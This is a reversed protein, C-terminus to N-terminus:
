SVDILTNVISISNLINLSLCPKVAGFALISVFCLYVFVPMAGSINFCINLHFNKHM